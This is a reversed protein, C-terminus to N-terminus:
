RAHFGVCRSGNSTFLLRGDSGSVAFRRRSNGLRIHTCCNRSLCPAFAYFHKGDNISFDAGCNTICAKKESEALRRCYYGGGEKKV